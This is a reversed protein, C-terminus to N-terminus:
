LEVFSSIAAILNNINLNVSASIDILKELKDNVSTVNVTPSPFPTLVIQLVSMLGQLVGASADQVPGVSSIRGKSEQRTPTTKQKKDQNLMKLYKDTTISRKTMSILKNGM